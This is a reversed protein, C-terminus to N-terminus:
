AAAPEDVKEVSEAIQSVSVAADAAEIGKEVFHKMFFQHHEETPQYNHPTLSVSLVPVNTKLQVDMLGNVVAQSVFDHRYIGGNVVFAAAAIADYRGKQALRQALLPMEFAGPVDFTEVSFGVGLENLRQEFGVLAQDVIDAHWRAKIFAFKLSKAMAGSGKWIVLDWLSAVPVMLESAGNEVM